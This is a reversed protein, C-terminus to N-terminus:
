LFDCSRPPRPATRSGALTWFRLTSAPLEAGLGFLDANSLHASGSRRSDAWVWPRWWLSRIFQSAGERILVGDMTMEQSVDAAVGSLTLLAKRFLSVEEAFRVTSTAALSDLLSTMWEFGPFSGGRVQGIAQRVAAQVQADDVSQGLAAIAACVRRDNLTLAGLVLQVVSECQRKTLTTTLAWDLIALRGDPMALLNGAHPDAHFIAGADGCSWFPQALLARILREARQRMEGAPLDQSTVKCGDVRQMATVTPTSFPFVGPIVIDPSGAYFEAAQRLHAQERDLHVENALLHAVSELTNAYDFVPLGHAVCREELFTGLAPWIALEEELRDQVGARLVKFVGQQPASNGAPRWVFPVIVAVSAEALAKKAIHLGAVDGVSRELLPRVAVLSDTPVLTELEQLRRRLDASLRRDHAVVQGLKHLTPCLRFLALLRRSRSANAPLALQAAFIDQQRRPSLHDLFFLLADALLPRFRAHAPPLLESLRLLIELLGHDTDHLLTM